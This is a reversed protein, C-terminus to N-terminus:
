VQMKAHLRKLLEERSPQAGASLHLKGLQQHQQNSGGAAAAEQQHQSDHEQQQHQAQKRQLETTTKTADPDLKARKNQKYQEKFARKTAAREDHKMYKTNIHEREEAHYYKPDVLDALYDFFRSHSSVDLSAM